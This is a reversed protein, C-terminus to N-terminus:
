MPLVKMYPFAEPLLTEALARHQADGDLCLESLLLERNVVPLSFFEGISKDIGMRYFCDKVDEQAIFM